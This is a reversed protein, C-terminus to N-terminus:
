SYGIQKLGALGGLHGGIRWGGSDEKFGETGELEPQYPQGM